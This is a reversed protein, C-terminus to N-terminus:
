KVSLLLIKTPRWYISAVAKEPLSPEAYVAFGANPLNM